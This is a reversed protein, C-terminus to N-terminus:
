GIPLEHCMLTNFDLKTLWHANNPYSLSTHALPLFSQSLQMALAWGLVPSLECFSPVQLVSYLCSLLNSLARELHRM